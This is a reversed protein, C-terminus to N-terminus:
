YLLKLGWGAQMDEPVEKPGCRKGAYELRCSDQPVRDAKLEPFFLYM